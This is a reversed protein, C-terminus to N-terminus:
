KGDRYNMLKDIKNNYERALSRGRETSLDCKDRKKQLANLKFIRVVHIAFATLIIVALIILIITSVNNQFDMM